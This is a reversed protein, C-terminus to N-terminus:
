GLDEHNYFYLATLFYALVFVITLIPLGFQFFTKRQFKNENWVENRKEKAASKKSRKTQFIARLIEDM